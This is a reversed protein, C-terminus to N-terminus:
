FTVNLGAGFRPTKSHHDLGVVIGPGITLGDSAEWQFGLELTTSDADRKGENQEHVVAAVVAAKDSIEYKYGLRGLYLSSRLSRDANGFVSAAGANLFLTGDGLSQAVILSLRASEGSAAKDTLPLSVGVITSITPIGDSEPHWRELWFPNASASHEVAHRELDLRSSDIVATEHDFLLQYASMNVIGSFNQPSSTIQGALYNAYPRVPEAVRSTFNRAPLFSVIDAPMLSSGALSRGAEFAMFDRRDLYQDNHVVARGAELDLGLEMNTLFTGGQPTFRLEGGVSSDNLAKRSNQSSVTTVM